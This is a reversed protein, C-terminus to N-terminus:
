KPKSEQKPTEGNLLQTLQAIAGVIQQMRNANQQAMEQVLKTRQQHSQILEEHSTNLNAQEVKLKSIQDLIHEKTIM